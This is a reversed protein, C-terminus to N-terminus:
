WIRRLQAGRRRRLREAQTVVGHLSALQDAWTPLGGTDHHDTMSPTVGAALHPRRDAPSRPPGQHHDPQHRGQPDPRACRQGARRADRHHGHRGNGARATRGSRHLYAKHEIPPDAHVVLAVDDVHIGRAAIDTAVLTTAEGSAFAALNRERAGQALNGHMEVAPVGNANLQRALTKARYKTRTFMVTRGSRTALDVLIPLRHESTVHFVHHDMEVPPADVPDVNHVVPQALFRKVIVDVQKDLTASFMMRQGNAPTRGLLRCSRPSASTACTTPRTSCPSRSRTSNAHGGQVLDELRGPCAVVIDAGRRLAAIQPNAGVGGFVTATRLGVAAALPSIASTCRTPWSM